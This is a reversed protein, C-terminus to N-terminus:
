SGRAVEPVPVFRKCPCNVEPVKNMWCAGRGWLHSIKKHGCTGCTM